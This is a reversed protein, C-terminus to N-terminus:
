QAQTPNGDLKYTVGNKMVFDVKQLLSIDNLPDGKVAVIDAWKGAALSGADAGIDLLEAAATTASQIAEMAPMGAEVMFMFEQANEGHPFVGADTGFAIKVGSKYAERFTGQIKPGIAAAKPVVVAPFYGEVAAKREVFKGASITPVYWTGHKKFLKITEKDMYTGHEISTVGARIARKMGEAGHAHVAVTMGYDKATAVIADIEDEFFQPNQGNKAMSLVGGTATIKIVDSGEKYRQRVAERAAATGNIVGEDPGPHGMLKQNTGNSPDAHGGTTAISKGATFIRPGVVLQQNIANRLAVSVLDMDGLDRVTTFGALLTSRAYGVSRYAYDAPDLRFGESYAQPNMEHTLHTHMDMFGPMVTHQRLNIVQDGSGAESYGASVDSIRGDSVRITQQKLLKGKATDIITGAHILTDALASGASLGLAILAAKVISASTM